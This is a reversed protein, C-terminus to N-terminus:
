LHKHSFELWDGLVMNWSNKVSPVKKYHTSTLTLYKRPCQVYLLKLHAQLTDVTITDQLLKFFQFSWHLSVPAM